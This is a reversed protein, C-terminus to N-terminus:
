IWIHIDIHMKVFIIARDVSVLKMGSRVVLFHFHQISISASIVQQEFKLCMKTSYRVTVFLVFQVTQLQSTSLIIVAVIRGYWVPAFIVLHVSTDLLFNPQDVRLKLPHLIRVTRYLEM